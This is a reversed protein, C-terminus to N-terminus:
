HVRRASSAKFNILLTLVLLLAAVANHGAAAPLQSALELHANSMSWVVKLGLGVQVVLAVGLCLAYPRGAAVRWTRLVLWGLVGLVALAFVRHAMHIATLAELSLQAGQATKGLERVLHFGNAFDTPPLLEGQCWPLEGCAAAAYNTSVWGGLALQLVLAILAIRAPRRLAVWQVNSGQVPAVRQAYWVLLGLTTLGGLLHLTVIAPKLLWTVTWAGLVAQFIVVGVLTWALPASSETTRRQRTAGIALALILCGVFMALYRHGMEKWAKHMSVPGQPAQATAAEIAERALTPTFEGYCGPWDPCGLGADSLRVYAGLVILGFTILATVRALGHLRERRLGVWLVVVAIIATSMLALVAHEWSTMGM